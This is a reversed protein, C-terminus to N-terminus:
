HIDQLEQQRRTHTKCFGGDIVISSSQQSKCPNEMQFRLRHIDTLSIPCPRFTFYVGWSDERMCRGASLVSLVSRKAEEWARKDEVFLGRLPRSIGAPCHLNRVAGCIGCSIWHRDQEQYFSTKSSEPCLGYIGVM